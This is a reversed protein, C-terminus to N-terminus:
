HILDMPRVLRGPMPRRVLGDPIAARLGGRLADVLDEAPHQPDEPYDQWQGQRKARRYGEIARITHECRPHIALSSPGSAPDILAELTALSDAISGGPWPAFKLGARQYEALVTPGIPNRAGGAPDTWLHLKSGRRDGMREVLQLGVRYAPVEELLLDDYVVVLPVEGPRVHVQFWVCGTFVGSDVALHVPLSPDYAATDRVCRARSFDRFWLGDAKPGSCLYDAAFTRASVARAKAILSDITYHGGALKALPVNGNADREAHCWTVIPCEPCREYGAVGGVWPGSREPPCYELVDFTCSTYLPYAGAKAQDVLKGMEGGLNHWTSTMTVSAPVGDKAMSMGMAADRLGGEIEDVEDLRLRPVHPGRVSTPSAALISVSSGNRYRTETKLVEALADVDSGGPGRGDLIAAKIGDYIQAAQAKSGGLIRTGLKPYRRSELHTLLASQFSKGSGRSGLVLAMPLRDLYLDALWDFPPQHHRCVKRWSLSVGTFARVWRWLHRRTAPPTERIARLARTTAPDLDM